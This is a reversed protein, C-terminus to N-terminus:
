LAALVENYFIVAAKESDWPEWSPFRDTIKGGPHDEENTWIVSDDIMADRELFLMARDAQTVVDEHQFGEPLGFKKAVASMVSAELRYYDPMLRKAPTPVDAIYAESADHLLGKVRQEVDSILRGVYVSHQAVSYFPGTHGNFRPARSLAVAIDELLITDPDPDNFDLFAGSRTRISYPNPATM